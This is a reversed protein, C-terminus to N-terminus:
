NEGRPEREHFVIFAGYLGGFDNIGYAIDSEHDLLYRMMARGAMDLAEIYADDLDMGLYYKDYNSM